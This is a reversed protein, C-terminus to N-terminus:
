ESGQGVGKLAQVMWDYTSRLGDELTIKASWGLSHILEVDLLKRPTGDPRSTDFELSGKFGSVGAILEALESISVDHGCGLNVHSNRDPVRNWFEGASLAMLTTCGAAMDDVHLFERRPKGSGWVTVSAHKNSVALHFKRLLAPLVHSSELDFNDEPGYLNTPMVSRFDCGYQRRYSECMRLGAIKAIAYAENTPELPGQLLASEKM